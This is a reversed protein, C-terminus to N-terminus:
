FRPAKAPDVSKGNQTVIFVLEPRGSAPYIGLKGLETGPEIIDGKRVSLADCAGYLYRYGDETEVVAVNGYGRWASAYVVTGGTLSKVSVSRQGSVFVGLNNNMYLVENTPIPWRLAPNATRLETRAPERQMAAISRTGPNDTSPAPNGVIPIKIKQGIKVADFGAPFGNIDLLAQLTIGNNQAIRFLTDNRSIVHEIYATTNQNGTPTTEAIAPAPNATALNASITSGPITLRMGAQLQLPNALNNRRM